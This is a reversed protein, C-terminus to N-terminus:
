ADPDDEELKNLGRRISESVPLDADAIREYLERHEEILKAPDSDPETPYEPKSM